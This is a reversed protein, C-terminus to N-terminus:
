IQKVTVLETVLKFNVTKNMKNSRNNGVCNRQFFVLIETKEASFCKLFASVNKHYIQVKM